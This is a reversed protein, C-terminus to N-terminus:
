EGDTDEEHETVRLFPKSKSISVFKSLSTVSLPFDPKAVAMELLKRDVKQVCVKNFNRKGIFALLERENIKMTEREVLTVKFDQGVVDVDATKIHNAQMHDSVARDAEEFADQAEQLVALCAQRTVM